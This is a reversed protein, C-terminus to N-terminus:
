TRKLVGADATGRGLTQRAKSSDCLLHFFIFHPNKKKKKSVSLNVFFYIWGLRHLILLPNLSLFIIM